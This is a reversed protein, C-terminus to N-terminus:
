SSRGAVLREARALDEPGNINFFPDLDLGGISPVPFDVAVTDCLALFDRVSLTSGAQLFARLDDRLSVPWLAFTPHARGASSAFPLITSSGDAARWLRDTVDAPFFPTDVAVSQVRDAGAAAAWDLGALIGALPGLFGPISDPLIPLGPRQFRAPEGNASVAVADVQPELREIARSVLSRGALMVLSKDRGGMRVSRGGALVVGFVRENV